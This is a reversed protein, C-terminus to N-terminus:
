PRILDSDCDAPATVPNCRAVYGGPVAAFYDNGFDPVPMVYDTSVFQGGSAFAAEQLTYDDDRAQQTDADARTRVMYGAGVLERIREGDSLASNVNFWAAEPDGEDSNTFMVRGRLSPHGDIYHDRAASRNLFVFMVRGRAESLTLWGDDLVAQELTDYEGRVDDPRILRDPSFVELIERDIEAVEDPGFELPIVFGLELPDPIVEEKAEIMVTIPIHQRNRDSWSKLTALCAKFTLCHTEFDLDQVHLVKMGPEDLEPLGSEPPDDTLILARRTAYMGGEPDAFLDLELQRVGRDFQEELPLATYELSDATEQSDFIALLELIRDRPQIHYSNHTGLVQIQNMRLVQDQASGATSGSDTSCALVFSAAIFLLLPRIIASM